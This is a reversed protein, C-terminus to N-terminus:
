SESRSNETADSAGTTAVQQGGNPLSFYTDIARIVEAHGNGMIERVSKEVRLPDLSGIGLVKVDSSDGAVLLAGYPQFTVAAHLVGDTWHRWLDNPFIQNTDIPKGTAFSRVILYLSARVGAAMKAHYVDQDSSPGLPLEHAEGSAPASPRLLSAELKDSLARVAPPLSVVEELLRDSQKSLVNSVECVNSAANKVDEASSKLSGVTESFSQNAVLAHGIAVVALVLSAISTAFAIYEGVSKGDPTALILAAIILLLVAITWLSHVVGHNRLHQRLAEM